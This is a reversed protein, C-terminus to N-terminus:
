IMIKSIWLSEIYSLIFSWKTLKVDTQRHSLSVSHENSSTSTHNIAVKESKDLLDYISPSWKDWLVIVNHFGLHVVRCLPNTPHNMLWSCVGKKQFPFSETKSRAMIARNSMVLCASMIASLHSFIFLSIQMFQICNLAAQFRPLPSFTAIQM